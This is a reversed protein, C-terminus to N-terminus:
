PAEGAGDNAEPIDPGLTEALTTGASVLFRGLAVLYLAKGATPADLEVVNNLIVGAAGAAIGEIRIVETAGEIIKAATRLAEAAAPGTAEPETM